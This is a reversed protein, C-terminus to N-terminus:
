LGRPDGLHMATSLHFAVISLIQYLGPEEPVLPETQVRREALLHGCTSALWLVPQTKGLVRYSCCHRLGREDEWPSRHSSPSIVGMWELSAEPQFVNYPVM